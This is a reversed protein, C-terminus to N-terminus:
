YELKVVHVVFCFLSYCRKGSGWVEVECLQLYDDHRTAYKYLFVAKAVHNCEGMFLRQNANGSTEWCDKKVRSNLKINSTRVDSTTSIKTRLIRAGSFFICM